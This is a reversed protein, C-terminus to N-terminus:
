WICWSFSLYQSVSLFFWYGVIYITWSFVWMLYL